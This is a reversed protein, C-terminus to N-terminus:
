RGRADQAHSSLRFARSRNRRRLREPLRRLLRQRNRGNPRSPRPDAQAVVLSRERLLSGIRRLDHFLSRQTAGIVTKDFLRDVLTQQTEGPYPLLGVKAAARKALVEAFLRLKALCTAPDSAYHEEAQTGLAVLRPDHHALYAFNPSPQTTM